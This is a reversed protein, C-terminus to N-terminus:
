RVFDPLRRAASRVDTADPDQRPAVILAPWADGGEEPVVTIEVAGPLVMPEGWRDQWASSGRRSYRLRISSVHPLLIDQAGDVVKAQSGPLPSLRAELARDEEGDKGLGIEIVQPGLKGLYGPLTSVFRVHSADGEFVVPTNGDLVKWPLATASSLQRRLFERAARVEDIRAILSSGHGVSLTTSRVGSYVGLLLLALLALAALVEMLSFGHTAKM